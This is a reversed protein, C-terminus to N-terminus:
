PLVNGVVTVPFVYAIPNPKVPFPVPAGAPQLSVIVACTTFPTHIGAPKQITLEFKINLLVFWDLVVTYAPKIPDYVALPIVKFTRAIPLVV